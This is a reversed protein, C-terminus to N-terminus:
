LSSKLFGEGRVGQLAYVMMLFHKDLSDYLDNHASKLALHRYSSQGIDVLYGKSVHLATHRQPFLGALLLCQDGTQRLLVLREDGPLHLARLFALGLQDDGMYLDHQYHSLTMILYQKLAASLPINRSSCVEHIAEYWVLNVDNKQTMFYIEIYGGCKYCMMFLRTTKKLLAGNTYYLCFDLCIIFYCLYKSLLVIYAYM